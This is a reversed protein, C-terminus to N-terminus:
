DDVYAKKYDTPSTGFLKAFSTSFHSSSSFGCLLAVETITLHKRRLMTKAKALRIEILYDMPTRRTEKKFLRNFSSVSMNSLEALRKVTIKQSFHREMYHESRAVAFNSSIARMDLLEGMLSRILWHTIITMHADMTIELNPMKKSCEFAFTNLARLIDHCLSFKKGDFLPIQSDYMKYQDEFYAKDIMICYYNGYPYDNHPVGPSFALAIYQDQNVSESFDIM